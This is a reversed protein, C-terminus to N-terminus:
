PERTAAATLPRGPSTPILLQLLRALGGLLGGPLYLLILVLLCGEALTKYLAFGQSVAPLATILAAGLLPGILTAEGGVVLMTVLELSRATSVLDPSIFHFNFAYLSGALSAFAASLLFASIKYFPVAIGLARAATEDARIAQLARGYGTRTLNASLWLLVAALGCVLYYNSVASTFVYGLSFSPIGVLGSPGGTLDSLGITLSDVLLGFGLTALALYLGRLRGTILALVMAIALSCLLGVLLGIVPAVHYRTALIGAAYAGTAMFGAQGLSVQGTYGMLLDLGLVAIFLIGAIVASATLGSPELWLPM